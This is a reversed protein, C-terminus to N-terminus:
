NKVYTMTTFLRLVRNWEESWPAIMEFHGANALVVHVSSDGADSLAQNFRYGFFPPVPADFAANVEAHTVGLPLLHLPSTDLYASEGRSDLDVLREVTKEGCPSAGYSAYRELDNIGALSIVGQVQIPEATYLPSTPDINKRGALWTALHGGASHGAVLVTNIPLEYREAIQTLHDAGSAVDLFTGPYGGGDHGLRRYEVNWVAFGESRLANAMHNMIEVGPYIDLWCGGHVLIVTARAEEEPIWLDGFQLSDSGYRIREDPQPLEREILDSWSILQAQLTDTIFFLVLILSFVRIM